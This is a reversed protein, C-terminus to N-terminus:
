VPARRTNNNQTIGSLFRDQKIIDHIVNARRRPRVISKVVHTLLFQNFRDGPREFM